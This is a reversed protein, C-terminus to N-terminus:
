RGFVRRITARAPGVASEGPKAGSLREEENILWGKWGVARITGALRDLPFEGEGLPVQEGARFDRLHLGALRRHHRRLFDPVDVGVRFAWGCDMIFEVNAADTLRYLGEIEQGGESMEPGHNHYALRLGRARCYAGAANLGDAKRRLADPSVTGASLLGGGSLILREAGLAAAGDAIREIETRPAIATQADYRDLFIHVGLLKLGTAELERRAAAADGFRGQLNRFGTEYGEYGLSKLKELVGLLDSFRSPDIRWANTQCGLRLRGALGPELGLGASLAMLGGIFGRRTMMEPEVAPNM